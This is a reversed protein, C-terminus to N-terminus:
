TSAKNRGSPARTRGKRPPYISMVLVPRYGAGGPRRPADCGPQGSPRAAWKQNDGEGGVEHTGGVREARPCFRKESRSGGAQAPQRARGAAAPNGRREGEAHQELLFINQGRAESPSPSPSRGGSSSRASPRGIEAQASIRRRSGGLGKSTRKPRVSRRPSRCSPVHQARGKGQGM